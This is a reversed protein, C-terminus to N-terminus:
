LPRQNRRYTQWALVALTLGTLPLVFLLMAGKFLPLASNGTANLLLYTLYAGYYGLFLGGEWRSICGRIFFVPLCSFAVAIMIPIDADLAQASVPVGHPAVAGTAGIVFLINFLNSGIVNGVAIDREGRLAAMASTAVEPMSTGASVITLGIVLESIGWARALAVSGEVLWEAGLYLLALGLAAIAGHLVYGAKASGAEKEGFERAYEAEMAKNERKSIRLCLWLYGLGLALLLVGEARGIQGDLSLLYFLVSAAIMLPVDLRILQQAVALPIIAASLGLILLVNLINSGVVNGVALDPQGLWAAGVSVALEPSSTGFAVVTLGIVLPSTGLLVALRSSGRVLLEAGGIM